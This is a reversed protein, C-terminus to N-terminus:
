EAAAAYMAVASKGMAILLVSDVARRPIAADALRLTIEDLLIRGRVAAAVDVRQMADAFIRRAITRLHESVSARETCPCTGAM